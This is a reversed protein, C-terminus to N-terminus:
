RILINEVKKIEVTELPGEAEILIITKPESKKKPSMLLVGISFFILIAVIGLAIM